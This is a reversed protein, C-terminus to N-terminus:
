PNVMLLKSKSIETSGDSSLFVRYLYFGPRLNPSSWEIAAAGMFNSTEDANIANNLMTPNDMSFAYVKSASSSSATTEYVKYGTQTYVQLTISQASEPRNHLVRFTVTDGTKAPCPYAQVVVAEPPTENLVTFTFKRTTPNNYVDWVRFTAEYTGDELAPISYQVNGTTPDNTYTTFYNNLTHQESALLLNSTCRITLVIDHGVTNGTANFGGDDQVEAFFYPTSNVVSGDTWTNDNLFLQKIVPGETDTIVYDDASVLHYNDYFGSAEDSNESAAYFNALGLNESYSIDIPVTFSFEFQGNTIESRGSFAKKTRTTFSYVPAEDQVYGKDATLTDLADYFTPYLLGNFTSDVETESGTKLVHGRVTVNNLTKLQFVDSAGDTPKGNIHTIKIQQEPYALTLSPDGLLCFNLKNYDSGLEIKAAKIIDGLRYRTGDSFRNFINDIIATNLLLNQQAYVVRVTSLMAIAGGNPNLLLCEGMSIGDEDWRSVDCSATVWVPLHKNNLKQAAAATMMNENTIATTNGHGAYNVMLVGQKLTENFEKKADPYDTGSASETQKYAPLYIKQFVFENHNAKQLTNVLQDNHKVHCNFSDGAKDDDSLFCLRNKWTGLYANNGYNVIKALMNNSMEISSVPLRGIGIDLADRSITYRQNNDMTGGEGDDLFGFYDDCVCSSTEVLSAETEYSPLYYNRDIAQNDYYGDGWLLLYLPERRTNDALSDLGSNASGHWRDYFMKMLLRIATVDQKGSSFENYIADPTVVTVHLGDKERRYEALQEAQSLYVPAVVIVMNTMPLAHLNQNSVTGENVVGKFSTANVNVLAYERIGAKDPTFSNSSSVLQRKVNCPHTVDWLQIDGDIANGLEYRVVNSYANQARFLEFDNPKFFNRKGQIRIYNLRAISPTSGAPPNYTISVSLGTSNDIVLNKDLTNENAFAYDNTKRVITNTGLLNGNVAVSYTSSEIADVIFNATVRLTGPDVSEFDFTQVRNTIFSEGYKERGTQGLNILNNEHVWHVDYQNVTMSSTGLDAALEEMAIPAENTKQHLFYYAKTDYTNWRQIFGRTTNYDWRLTGQGYFLIRRNATDHYTAVEPLDDVIVSNVAEHLPHGGFGYVGVQEPNSFGMKTLQDYTIQYIGDETGDLSIKLWTGTALKSSATFTHLGTSVAQVNLICLMMLSAMLIYKIRM